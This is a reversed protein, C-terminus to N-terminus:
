RSAKVHQRDTLLKKDIPAFLTSSEHLEDDTVQVIIPLWTERISLFSGMMQSGFALDLSQVVSKMTSPLLAQPIPCHTIRLRTLETLADRIKTVVTLVKTCMTDLFTKNTAFRILGQCREYYVRLIQRCFAIPFKGNVDFNGTSYMHRLFEKRYRPLAAEREDMTLAVLLLSELALDVVEMRSRWQHHAALQVPILGSKHPFRKQQYQFWGMLATAIQPYIEKRIYNVVSLAKYQIMRTVHHYYNVMLDDCAIHLQNEHVQQVPVGRSNTSLSDVLGPYTIEELIKSLNNLFSTDIFGVENVYQKELSRFFNHNRWHNGKFLEPSFNERSFTWLRDLIKERLTILRQYLVSSTVREDSRSDIPLTTHQWVIGLVNMAVHYRIPLM